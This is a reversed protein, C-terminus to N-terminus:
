NPIPWRRADVRGCVTFFPRRPSIEDYPVGKSATWPNGTQEISESPIKARVATVKNQTARVSKLSNL